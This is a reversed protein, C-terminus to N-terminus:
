RPTCIKKASEPNRIAEVAIRRELHATLVIIKMAPYEARMRRTLAIGSGDPLDVDMLVLDPRLAGAELWATACDGCTGVVVTGPVRELLLRLSDQLIRHDEVILVRLSM